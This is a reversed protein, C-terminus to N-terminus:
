LPRAAGDLHARGNHGARNVPSRSATRLAAALDSAASPLAATAQAWAADHDLGTAIADRYVDELHQALEQVIEEERPVELSPLHERVYRRFEMRTVKRTRSRGGEAIRAATRALHQASARPGKARRVHAPLVAAQASGSERGVQRRDVG